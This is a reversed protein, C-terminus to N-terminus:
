RKTRRALLWACGATAVTIVACILILGGWGATDPNLFPYPYWGTAAGRVLSYVLFLLPFVLWYITTRFSFIFQPPYLLWDALMVIPMIYHIVANVWPITAQLDEAPVDSLLLFSIIGTMLMYLTAAGRLFAFQRHSQAGVLTGVGVVLLVIAAVINSQVTFFSFFNLLSWGQQAGYLCQVTLAVVVLLSM